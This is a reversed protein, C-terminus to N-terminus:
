IILVFVSADVELLELGNGSLDLISDIIIVEQLQQVWSVDTLLCWAIFADAEILEVVDDGPECVFSWWM